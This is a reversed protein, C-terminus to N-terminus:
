KEGFIIIERNILSKMAKFIENENEQLDTLTFYIYDYLKLDGYWDEKEKGVLMLVSKEEHLAVNLNIHFDQYVKDKLYFNIIFNNDVFITNINLCDLDSLTDSEIKLIKNNLIINYIKELENLKETMGKKFDNIKM